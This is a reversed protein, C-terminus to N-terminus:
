SSCIQKRKSNRAIQPRHRHLKIWDSGENIGFWLHPVALLVRDLLLLEDDHLLHFSTFYVILVGHFMSDAIPYMPHVAADAFM